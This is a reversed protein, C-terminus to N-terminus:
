LMYVKKVQYCSVSVEKNGKPLRRLCLEGWLGPLFGATTQSMGEQCYTRASGDGVLLQGDTILCTVTKSFSFLGLMEKLITTWPTSKAVGWCCARGSHMIKFICCPSKGWAARLFRSSTCTMWVTCTVHTVSSGRCPSWLGWRHKGLSCFLCPWTISLWISHM